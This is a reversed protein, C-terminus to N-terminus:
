WKERKPARQHVALKYLLLIGLMLYGVPRFGSLEIKREGRGISFFSLVLVLAGGLMLGWEMFRQLGSKSSVEVGATPIAALSIATLRKVCEQLTPNDPDRKLRERYDRAM